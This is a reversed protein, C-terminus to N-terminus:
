GVVEQWRPDDHLSALDTDGRAYGRAEEPALAVARALHAFADDTDGFRAEFCALNYPKVWPGDGEPLDLMIRRGEDARGARGAAFAVVVDDWGRSEFPKGPTAGVALVITGPEEATAERTEGPQAHVLTGAAADVTEGGVVFRARGRVVVYLEEDGSEEEHRPVIENGPEATWCNAGFARLGLRHRLPMLLSDGHSESATAELDDLSLFEYRESM